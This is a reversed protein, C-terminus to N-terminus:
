SVNCYIDMGYACFGICWFIFFLIGRIKSRHIDHGHLIAPSSAEASWSVLEMEAELIVKERCSM